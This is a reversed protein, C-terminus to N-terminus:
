HHDSLEKQEQDQHAQYMNAETLDEKTHKYIQLVGGLLDGYVEVDRVCRDIGCTIAESLLKGQAFFIVEIGEKPRCLCKTSFVRYRM